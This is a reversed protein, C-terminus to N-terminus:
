GTWSRLLYALGIGIYNGVVYGLVGILVAPTILSRWQKSIALALATSPGGICAQSAVSLTEIELKMLRGIGFIIVGHFSILIVLFLFVIPGKGVLTSLVTGAGLVVFFLHLFFNGFEEGGSLRSLPTFALGLAITTYWIVTPIEFGLLQNIYPAVFEAVAVVIFTLAALYVIDYISIDKKQWFADGTGSEDDEGTTEDDWSKISPYFRLLVVPIFATMVIWINTMVTDAAAGTAYLTDSTGVAEGVAVYNLGGGAYSGAFQGGLKWAEPGISGAMILTAVVAGLATGAVGIVFAIVAPRGARRISRLDATALLLVIALPVAYDSAFTYVPNIDEQGEVAISPPIIRLNVLIAAGTIVLIATGFFSFVRFRRDLWFTFAILATVVAGVGFPDTILTEGFM